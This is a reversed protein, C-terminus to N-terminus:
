RGPRFRPSNFVGPRQTPQGQPAPAALAKLSLGIRKRPLDVALVKVRVRDGVKVVEAPDKVFRNALESVHVLGDQHVGIDVFAGFAAVNTVIGQLVMGERVHALETVDPDFGVDAFEARPDRGPKKLEAVIDQLTPLGVAEAPDVYRTIQVKDALAANGVLAGPDVGLDGAMRAVLPYREPHVASQDLPEDGGRIRLFGACQEFARAGLRPVKKLAGRNRFAGRAARHAVIAQALAPGLGAVYRLLTPSATNLDVGVRNVATEVVRDLAAALAGQDVDHQYQGVGISRPDIKVLEALPDQLRRGISVAGRISVDLDPLEARALESASYVSAGAESVSIIKLERPLMGAAQIKRVLAETERGATGNGIAIAEPAHARVLQALRAGAEAEKGTHPYVTAHELVGGRGDLAVVKCGTRLGPDVALVPRPGLPPALLLAELNQAFVRIAEHDARAKLARRYESELAPLLLRDVADLIALDVQQALTRAAGPRRIRRQVAHVVDARPVEVTVKLLGEAEGREAALVRHSPAKEARESRGAHEQYKALEPAKSKGRAVDVKLEGQDVFRRRLEARVDSQEAITEAIIDRAGALVEATGPLDRAPDVHARALEDASPAQPGQAFILDALPQLGKERAAQARTRRKPKYPLYLDELEALTRAAHLKRELEPTLAGQARVTELIFARRSERAKVVEVHDSIRQIAGDDLGGTAEKRYRAIFPVTAGEDLLELTRTVGPLPLGLEAAVLSARHSLDAAPRPM